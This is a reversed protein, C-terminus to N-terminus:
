ACLDTYAICRSLGPLSVALHSHSKILSATLAQRTFHLRYDQYVGGTSASLCARDQMSM